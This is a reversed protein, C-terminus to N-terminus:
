SCAPRPVACCSPSCAKRDEIPQRRLDRGDLELLDFAFLFVDRDHRRARLRDFVPLGDGDCAVAEGDLLCSKVRLAGVAQAILPFRDTWNNGNHTFLRVGAADRRVVMRFGDHKIEHIWSSGIPPKAVPIPLCPEIFGAPPVRYLIRQEYWM